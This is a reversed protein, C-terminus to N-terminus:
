SQAKIGAAKYFAKKEDNYQKTLANFNKNEDIVKQYSQNIATIKDELEALKLDKKQFLAYLTKDLAAAEKYGAYLKEYSNYRDNMLKKLQEAKHAGNDKDLNKMEAEANKFEKASNQMSEHEKEIMNERDQVLGLAQKSLTVIQSYDKMGLGVIQSYLQNEKQEAETLPKQQAKFPEELSAVKELSNYVKDAPSSGSCSALLVGAM